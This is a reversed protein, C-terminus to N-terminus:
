DDIAGMDGIIRPAVPRIEILVSEIKHGLKVLLVHVGKAIRKLPISGLGKGIWHRRM